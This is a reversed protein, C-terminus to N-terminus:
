LCSSSWNNAAVKNTANPIPLLTIIRQLEYDTCLYQQQKHSTVMAAKRMNTGPQRTAKTFNYKTINLFLYLTYVYIFSKLPFIKTPVKKQFHQRRKPSIIFKNLTVNLVTGSTIFATM